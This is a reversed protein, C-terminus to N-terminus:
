PADTGIWLLPELPRGVNRAEESDVRQFELRRKDRQDDVDQLHVVKRRNEVKRKGRPQRVEDGERQGAEWRGRPKGLNLDAGGPARGIPAQEGGAQGGHQSRYAERLPSEGIDLVRGRQGPPELPM